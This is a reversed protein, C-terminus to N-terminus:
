LNPNRPFRGYPLTVDRVVVKDSRMKTPAEFGRSGVFAILDDQDVGDGSVGIAGVLEGGKNYLPFGGPFITIGNKLGPLTPGNCPNPNALLYATPTGPTGYMDLQLGTNFVSWTGLAKSFPGSKFPAIAGPPFIPQSLFGVARTSFAVTGNLFVRDAVAAMVYNGFGAGNLYEGASASSFFAATRAKQVSVDFGFIPADLTRFMGLIAGSADVVSITVRAPTGIPLRIAARTQDAQAAAANIIGTVDGSTLGGHAPSTGDMFGNAFLSPVTGRANNFNNLSPTVFPNPGGDIPPNLVTGATAFMQYDDPTAAPQDLPEANAFLLQFGAVFINDGRIAAPASFGLTGAAAISEEITPKTDPQGQDLIYSGDGEVGIGGVAVPINKQNLKYLPLGGPDASLGLPLNSMAASNRGSGRDVDSCQLNSFQVGFLPGGPSPNVEPPFHEQVIFGATRTTFANGQTSFFAATGAKSIAAPKALNVIMGMGTPVSSIGELGGMGYGMLTTTPPANAMQLVGLVVGEHDVVAITVSKGLKTAERAAQAIIVQVDSASLQVTESQSPDDIGASVSTDLLGCGWAWPGLWPVILLACRLFSETVTRM